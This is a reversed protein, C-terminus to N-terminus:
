GNDVVVVELAVGAQDLISDLCADITAVENRAPVIVTVDPTGPSLDASGPRTREEAEGHPM